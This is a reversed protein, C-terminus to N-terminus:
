VVQRRAELPQPPPLTPPAQPSTASSTRELLHFSKIDIGERTALSVRRQKHDILGSDAHRNAIRKVRRTLETFELAWGPLPCSRTVSV